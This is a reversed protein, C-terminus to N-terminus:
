SEKSCGTGDVRLSTLGLAPDPALADVLEHTFHSITSAHSAIIEGTLTVRVPRIADGHTEWRALGKDLHTLTVRFDLYLSFEAIPSPFPNIGPSLLIATPWRSYDHRYAPELVLSTTVPFTLHSHFHPIYTPIDEM